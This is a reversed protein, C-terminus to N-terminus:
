IWKSCTIIKKCFLNLPSYTGRALTLDTVLFRFTGHEFEQKFMIDCYLTFVLLIFFKFIFYFSLNMILFDVWNIFEHM